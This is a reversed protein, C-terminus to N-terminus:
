FNFKNRAGSVSNGEFHSAFVNLIRFVHEPDLRDVDDILLISKKDDNKAISGSIIKITIDSEYISGEKSEMRELYEILKDGQTKSIEEHYELYEEKLKDIKEFADVVEKGLKPIMYVIGAVVKHLNKSVYGPLTDILRLQVEEFSIGGKLMEVIIDYKIYRLIDENSAISYNTPFLRYVDYKKSGFLGGQNEESFFDELFRTKGTGYKGSFITRENSDDELHSKFEHIPYEFVEKFYIPEVTTLLNIM